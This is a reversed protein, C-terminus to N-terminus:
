KLNNLLTKGIKLWGENESDVIVILGILSITLLLTIIMWISLLFGNVIYKM